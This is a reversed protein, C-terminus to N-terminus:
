TNSPPQLKPLPKPQGGSRFYDELGSTDKTLRAYELRNAVETNAARREAAAVARKYAALMEEVYGFIKPLSAMLGFLGSLAMSFTVPEM